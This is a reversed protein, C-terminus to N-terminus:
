VSVLSEVQSILFRLVRENLRLRQRLDAIVRSEAEFNILYYTGESIKKIKFSFRQKELWVKSNIVKGGAKTVGDVAEKAIAEKQEQPLLADVIIVLEYKRNM